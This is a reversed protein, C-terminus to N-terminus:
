LKRGAVAALEMVKVIKEKEASDVEFESVVIGALRRLIEELSGSFKEIEGSKVAESWDKYGEDDHLKKM